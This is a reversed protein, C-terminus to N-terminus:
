RRREEAVIQGDRIRLVREVYETVEPNHTVVVLTKGQENLEKFIEMVQKGTATDLNGTPEDALLLSPDNALARAISVRQQEGGSLEVAKHNIRHGLGVTELLRIARERRKDLPVKDVFTMSLLVNDLATLRSLLNYNQFVFGIEMGRIRSLENDDLRSVDTNRFLLKGSTPRDLLGMLNLLTSKGSGSPGMIAISEGRRVVMNIGRLAHVKLRREDYVKHVDVMRLVENDEEM